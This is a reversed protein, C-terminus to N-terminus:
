EKLVEFEVRRNLRRGIDTDNSAIPLSKGFGKYSMRSYPIGNNALYQLVAKARKESLKQNYRTSGTFDTHGRIEIEMSSRTKMLTILKNLETISPPLLKTKDVDFYIHELTIIEGKQITVTDIRSPKPKEFLYPPIKKLKLDDLFYYAFDIDENTSPSFDTETDPYFNGIIIHDAAESAKFKLVLRTWGQTSLQGAHNATPDVKIYVNKKIRIRGTSFWIGFNGATISEPLQYIYVSFEYSQSPVLPEILQVQIYERCHPKGGSCGYTTIGAMAKGSRPSIKGFGRRKWYSPIRTSANMADPSSLTPSNWFQVKRTFDKGHYSWGNYRSSFLEFGPNPIINPMSDQSILGNAHLVCFLFISIFGFRAM